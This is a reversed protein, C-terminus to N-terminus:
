DLNFNFNTDISESVGIMEATYGSVWPLVTATFLVFIVTALIAQKGTIQEYLVALRKLM